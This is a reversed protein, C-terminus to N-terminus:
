GTPQKAKKSVCMGFANRKNGNTGYENAFREAGMSQREAKCQKAANQTQEQQAQVEDDTKSSVCKGFANRKNANTGYENAFRELGMSQREAKCEKAANQTSQSQASAAKEKQPKGKGEPPAALAAPVSLALFAALVVLTRTM